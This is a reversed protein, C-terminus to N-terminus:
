DSQPAAPPRDPARLDRQAREWRLLSDKLRQLRPTTPSNARACATLTQDILPSLSDQHSFFFHTQPRYSQLASFRHEILEVRYDCDIEDPNLDLSQQQLGTLAGVMLYLALAPAGIVRFLRDVGSFFRRPAPGTPPTTAM